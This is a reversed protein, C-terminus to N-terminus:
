EIVRRVAPGGESSGSSGELGGRRGVFGDQVVDAILGVRYGAELVGRGAM